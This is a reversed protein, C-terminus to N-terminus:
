ALERKIIGIEWELFDALYGASARVREAYEGIDRLIGDHRDLARAARQETRLKAVRRRWSSIPVDKLHSIWDVETPPAIRSILWRWDGPVFPSSVLFQIEHEIRDLSSSITDALLLELPTGLAPREKSILGAVTRVEEPGFDEPRRSAELDLKQSQVRL